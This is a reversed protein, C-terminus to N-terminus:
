AAAALGEILRLKCIGVTEAARARATTVVIDGRFDAVSWTVGKLEVSNIAKRMRQVIALGLLRAQPRKEMRGGDNGKQGPQPCLYFARRHFPIACRENTETFKVCATDYRSSVIVHLGHSQCAGRHQGAPFLVQDSHLIKHQATPFMM